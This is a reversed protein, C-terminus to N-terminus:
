GTGYIMQMANRLQAIAKRVQVDDGGHLSEMASRALRGLEDFGFAGAAGALRHLAANLHDPSRAEVIETERQALGAIFTKRIHQFQEALEPNLGDPASAV